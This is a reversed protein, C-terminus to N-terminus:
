FQNEFPRRRNGGEEWKDKEEEDEEIELGTGETEEKGEDGEGREESM